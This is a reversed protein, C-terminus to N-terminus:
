PEAKTLDIDGLDKVSDTVRIRALKRRYMVPIRGTGPETMVTYIERTKAVQWGPGVDELLVLKLSRREESHVVGDIFGVSKKTRLFTCFARAKGTMRGTQGSLRHLTKVNFFPESRSLISGISKRDGDTLTNETRHLTLGEYVVEGLAVVLDYKSVPLGALEFGSRDGTLTARYVAGPNDPSMAFVADLPKRATALRGRIGGTAHPDPKTYLYKGTAVQAGAVLTWLAAFGAAWVLTTERNVM